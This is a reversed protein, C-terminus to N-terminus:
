YEVAIGGSVFLKETDAAIGERLGLNQQTLISGKLYAKVSGEPQTKVFILWERLFIKLELKERAFSLNEAPMGYIGTHGGVGIEATVSIKDEYFKFERKLGVYYLFGNQSIGEGDENEIRKAFCYEAKFFPVIHWVPSPFTIEAYLGNYDVAGKEWIWYRGYGVDFKVGKFETYFGVYFDTEKTEGETPVFNEAQIYFGNEGKSLGAVVSQSFLTKQYTKAGSYPGVYQNRVVASVEGTPKWTAVEEETAKEAAAATENILVEEAVASPENILVEDVAFAFDASLFIMVMVMVVAMLVKKM